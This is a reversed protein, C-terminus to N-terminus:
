VTQTTDSNIYTMGSVPEILDDRHTLDPCVGMRCTSDITIANSFQLTFTLNCDVQEFDTLDLTAEYFSYENNGYFSPHGMMFTGNNRSKTNNIQLHGLPLKM